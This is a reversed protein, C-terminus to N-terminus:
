ECSEEGGQGGGGVFFRLWWLGPGGRRVQPWTWTSRATMATCGAAKATPPHPTHLSRRQSASESLVPGLWQLLPRSSHRCDKHTPPLQNNHRCAVRQHEPQSLCPLLRLGFSAPAARCRRKSGVAKGEWRKLGARVGDPHDYIRIHNNVRLM